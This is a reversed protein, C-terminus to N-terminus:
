RDQSGLADIPQVVGLVVEGVKIEGRFSLSRYGM